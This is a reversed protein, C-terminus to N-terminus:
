RMSQNMYESFENRKYSKTPQCLLIILGIWGIVPILGILVWAASRNTDHLRRATLTFQAIFLLAGVTVVIPNFNSFEIYSFGTVAIGTSYFLMNYLVSYVITPIWYQKRTATYNWKFM